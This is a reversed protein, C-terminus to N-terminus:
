SRVVALGVVGEGAIDMESSAGTLCSAQRVSPVWTSGAVARGTAIGTGIEDRAEEEGAVVETVPSARQAVRILSTCDERDRHISRVVLDVRQKDM